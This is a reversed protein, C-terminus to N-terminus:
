EPSLFEHISQFFAWDNPLLFAASISFWYQLYSFQIILCRIRAPFHIMERSNKKFFYAKTTIWRLTM